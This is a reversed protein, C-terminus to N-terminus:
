ISAEEELIILKKEVKDVATNCFKLLKMGEQYLQFSAELGIEEDELKALIEQLQEMSKELTKTEKAM